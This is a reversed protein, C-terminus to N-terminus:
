ASLWTELEKTLKKNMIESQMSRWRGRDFAMAVAMHTLFCTKGTGPIGFIINIM